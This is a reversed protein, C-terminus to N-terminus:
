RDHGPSDTGLHQWRVGPGRRPFADRPDLLAVWYFTDAFLPRAPM